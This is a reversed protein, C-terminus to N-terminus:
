AVAAAAAAAQDAISGPVEVLDEVVGDCPAPESSAVSPGVPYRPRVLTDPGDHVWGYHRVLARMATQQSVVVVLPCVENPQPNEAWPLLPAVASREGPLVVRHLRRHKLYIEGIERQQAVVISELEIVEARLRRVEALEAASSSSLGWHELAEGVLATLQCQTVAPWGNPWDPLGQIWRDIAVDGADPLPAPQTTPAAPGAAEVHHDPRPDMSTNAFGM